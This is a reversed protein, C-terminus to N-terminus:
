IRRRQEEKLKCAVCLRATPVIELRKRQIAEGCDECFGFTSEEIKLLARDLYKLYRGERSALLFTKEREQADTGQDAPHLSYTSRDGSYEELTSRSADTLMGLERMIKIRRELILERFFEKDEPAYREVQDIGNKTDQKTNRVM